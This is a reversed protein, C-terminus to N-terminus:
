IFGYLSIKTSTSFDSKAVTSGSQHDKAFIRIRTIPAVSKWVGGQMGSLFYPSAIFSSFGMATKYFGSSGSYYPILAMITGGYDAALSRPVSGITIQSSQYAGITEISATSIASGSREWQMTIYSASTSDGNFDIGVDGSIGLTSLESAQGLILIHNYAQTIGTFNAQGSGSFEGIKNFFTEVSHVVCASAIASGTANLIFSGAVAISASTESLVSALLIPVTMAWADIMTMNSDTPGDLTIRYDEFSQDLDVGENFTALGLNTTSM